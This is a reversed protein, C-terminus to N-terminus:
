DAMDKEFLDSIQNRRAAKATDNCRRDNGEEDFSIGKQTGRSVNQGVCDVPDDTTSLM